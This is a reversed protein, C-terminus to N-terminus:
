GEGPEPWLTRLADRFFQNLVEMPPKEIRGGPSARELRVLETEIFASIAEIRPGRDLEAGARKAALLADIERRLPEDDILRDVLTDFEMPVPGLGADVWRIALLPRLAYFYKKTWVQEGGLYDRVNGQAMHLYHYRAARPSYCTPILARFPETVAPDERYIIPSQLWELLPPNSKRFLQLAKRLDWGSLDLAGDIPREIVDRRREVDVSLYWELPHAYLFRVDFDSDASPFGWARSGSECALFIKVGEDREIRRLRELVDARVADPILDPVFAPM